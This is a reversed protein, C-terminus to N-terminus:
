RLRAERLQVITIKSGHEHPEASAVLGRSELKALRALNAINGPPQKSYCSSGLTCSSLFDLTQAGNKPDDEPGREAGFGVDTEAWCNPTEWVKVLVVELKHPGLLEAAISFLVSAINEATPNCGPPMIFPNKGGFLGTIIDPMERRDSTGFAKGYETVYVPKTEPEQVQAFILRAFPDDPHLMMNHDWRDDIWAGVKQKM